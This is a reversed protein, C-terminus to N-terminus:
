CQQWQKILADNEFYLLLTIFDHHHDDSSAERDLIEPMTCTVEM